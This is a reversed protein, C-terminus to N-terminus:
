HVAAPMTWASAWEYLAYDHRNAERFRELVAPDLENGIAAVAASLSGADSGAISGASRNEHASPFRLGRFWPAYRRQYEALAADFREVVGVYGWERLLDSAEGLHDGTVVPLVPAWASASSLHFVQYDCVVRGLGSAEAVCRDLFGRLSNGAAWGHQPQGPDRCCFRYVSAARLLPHRLFVIPHCRRFPLPPRALHSSVARLRPRARLFGALERAPQIDHAHMGEFPEWAEGFAARLAADVSTGANKFIHYHVIVHPRAPYM